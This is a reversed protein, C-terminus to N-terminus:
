PAMGVQRRQSERRCCKEARQTLAPFHFIGFPFVNM